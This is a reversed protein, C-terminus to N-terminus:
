RLMWAKQTQLTALAWILLLPGHREKAPGYPADIVVLGVRDFDGPKEQGTFTDPLRTEIQIGELAAIDKLRQLEFNEDIPASKGISSFQTIGKARGVRNCNKVANILWFACRM